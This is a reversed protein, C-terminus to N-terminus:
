YNGCVAVCTWGATVTVTLGVVIRYGPPLALNFPIEITPTNATTSATVIPLAVDDWYMNNGGALSGPNERQTSTNVTQTYSNTTSTFMHREAGTATGTIIIYSAAASVATWAWAISGATAATTAAATAELSAVGIQGNPDVPYVKAFWTIGPGTNMTGGTTSQTGTPTIAAMTGAISAFRGLGNNIYIRAASATVTGGLAKFRLRNIYSGNTADATFIVQNNVNQGNFDNAATLLINGGDMAGQRSWIPDNNALSL